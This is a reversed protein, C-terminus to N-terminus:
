TEGEKATPYDKTIYLGCKYPVTLLKPGDM